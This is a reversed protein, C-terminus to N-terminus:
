PWRGGRERRCGPPDRDAERDHVVNSVSPLLFDEMRRAFGDEPNGPHPRAQHPIGAAALLDILHACGEPLLRLETDTGYDVALMRLRRLNDGYRAIKGDWDGLGAEFRRQAEPDPVVAGGASRYPLRVPLGRRDPDPAFAAGLTLFFAQFRDSEVDSCLRSQMFLTRALRARREPLADWSRQLALLRATGAPDFCEAEQLAGPRLVVPDLAYVAGFVGPHRMALLLAGSGGVTTGAIARARGDPLTRFRGDISTVLDRAIYDGWHGLVPSNTYFTGGLPTTGNPIVVIMEGIRGGAQLRDLSDRLRFDDAGGGTFIWPPDDFGPLFYLVPYRRLPQRGYSPPLCVLLRQRSSIGVTNARLSPADVTVQVLRSGGGCALALLAGGFLVAAGLQRGANRAFM